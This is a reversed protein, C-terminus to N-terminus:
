TRVPTGSACREPTRNWNADSLESSRAWRLVGPKTLVLTLGAEAALSAAASETTPIRDPEGDRYTVVMCNRKQYWFVQDIQHAQLPTHQM